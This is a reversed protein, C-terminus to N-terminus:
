GIKIRDIKIRDIQREKRDGIREYGKRRGKEDMSWGCARFITKRLVMGVPLFIRGSIKWFVGLCISKM